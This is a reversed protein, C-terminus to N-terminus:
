TDEFVAARHTAPLFVYIRSAEADLALTHAGPGTVVSEVMRWGAVDVVDVVGPAGIAVYLRSSRPNLFIVAPAGSLELSQLVAGSRSDLALLTADDCACYLRHRGADRDLGHPGRAPVDIRRAIRQPDLPDVVAICSPDAINVFFVRADPDFVAWRTRGPMAITALVTRPAVDILTVSASGPLDVTGVNACLLTRTAPDFALGNPRIGADIRAIVHPDRGDLVGVTDDGRNSSFVLGTPEHVRVGAVGPLGPISHIWRRTRTDIVDVADNATHAVYVRQRGHDVDAHDFGGAGSHAPLEIFGRNRLRTAPVTSM